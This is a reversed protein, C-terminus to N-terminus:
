FSDWMDKNEQGLAWMSIGRLNYDNALKLKAELGKQGDCWTLYLNGSPVVYASYESELSKMYGRLLLKSNDIDEEVDNHSLEGFQKYGGSLSWKSCYLAVGLQLKNKPVITTMFDLVAQQYPLAGTPGFSNPDNYAMAVLYDSAKALKEYDYAATLDKSIAKPDYPTTRPIAAVSFELNADKFEEGTREVFKTYTDRDASSIYEFDFQWGAYDEDRAEDILNDIINEQADEDALIKSMLERNFDQQFVLPVVKVNKDQARKIVGKDDTKKLDFNNNIYYVQPSVVDTYKYNTKFSKDGTGNNYFYAQVVQALGTTPFLLSILILATFINKM